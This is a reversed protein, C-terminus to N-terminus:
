NSSCPTYHTMWGRAGVELSEHLTTTLRDRERRYAIRKLLPHNPNEFVANTAGRDVLAFSLPAQGLAQAQYDLAGNERAAIRLAQEVQTGDANPILSAGIMAAGDPPEWREVVGDRSQWCGVLWDFGELPRAPEPASAPTCASMYLVLSILVGAGGIARPRAAGTV